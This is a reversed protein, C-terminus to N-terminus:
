QYFGSILQAQAPLPLIQPPLYTGELEGPPNDLDSMMNVLPAVDDHVIENHVVATDALLPDTDAFIFDEAGLQSVDLGDLYLLNIEKGESGTSNVDIGQILVLGQYTARERKTVVLERFHRIGMASVDIKDIGQRFGRLMNQYDLTNEQLALVFVTAGAGDRQYVKGALSAKMDEDDFNFTVGGGGGSLVIGPLEPVTRGTSQGNDILSSDVYRAPAVFGPQFTFHQAGLASVQQNKILLYQSDPLRIRSDDGFQELWLQSFEQEAFGVLYIVEGKGTEFNLITDRGNKRRRVVFVEKGAGGTLTNEGRGGDLLSDHRGAILIDDGEGSILNHITEPARITLAAGALNAEGHTLDIVVDGSIAAANLTNRGGVTGNIADDLVARQPQEVAKAVFEDTYFYIDDANQKGGFLRLTWSNLTIPLGDNADTVDLRWQGASHEGRHHTSMFRYNFDGSLNSGTDADDAGSGRTKEGARELLISESGGPSVLTVTLDGLRGVSASFDVEVQEVDMGSDMEVSASVRNGASLSEGAWDHYASIAQQNADTHKGIWSEALRVASRADVAGFGYDHSVHMGGGNWRTAGNTRWQSAPDNVQRASLAFIQQVDRYGLNPNAQLMLAAVGSVIPAAFSTGQTTSYQSGSVAGRETEMVRSSSLIHTGPASVLLSAGPNSFPLVRTKLTSLDAPGNIAGVQIGFRSNSGSSGQASGGEERQNGGSTVIITGLGGRGGSAAYHFAARLSQVGPSIHSLTFPSMFSWSHNIVDYSAMKALPTLDAGNSSNSLSYGGLTAECAVGVGGIGNRAAVMVGAVLTAHSSVDQPLIGSRTQTQLWVPDVNAALDSHQIDFIAPGVASSEGPEFQGIRVGKGTYDQWVSIVNIENLHGQQVVLPDTPIDPTMLSVTARMAVVEGTTLDVVSFAPIGDANMVEYKFSMLGTFTRDPYFEVDGYGNLWVRCGIADSLASIRLPTGYSFRLDNELLDAARIHQNWKRDIPDGYNNIWVQDDFLMMNNINPDIATIDSFSIKKIDQLMLTGDWWVVKKSELLERIYALNAATLQLEDHRTTQQIM